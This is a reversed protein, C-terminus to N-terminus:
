VWDASPNRQLWRCQLYTAPLSLHWPLFTLCVNSESPPFLLIWNLKATELVTENSGSHLTRLCNQCPSVFSRLPALSPIFLCFVPFSCVNELESTEGKIGLCKEEHPVKTFPLSHPTPSKSSSTKGGSGILNFFFPLM